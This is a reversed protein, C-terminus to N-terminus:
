VLRKNALTDLYKAGGTIEPLAERTGERDSMTEYHESFRRELFGLKETDAMGMAFYGGCANAVADIFPDGSSNTENRSAHRAVQMARYFAEGASLRSSRRIDMFDKPTPMFKCTGLLHAAAAKFEELSWDRLTLWWLDLAEPTIKAGPMITALGNIVRLFQEKDSPLM